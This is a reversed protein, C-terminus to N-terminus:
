LRGVQGAGDGRLQDHVGERGGGRGGWEVSSIMSVKGGGAEGM